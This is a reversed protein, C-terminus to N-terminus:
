YKGEIIRYSKDCAAVAVTVPEFDMLLCGSISLVYAFVLGITVLVWKKGPSLPKM